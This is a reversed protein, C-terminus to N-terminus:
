PAWGGGMPEQVSGCGEGTRRLMFWWYDKAGRLRGLNLDLDYGRGRKGDNIGRNLGEM